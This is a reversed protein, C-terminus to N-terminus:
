DAIDDLILRGTNFEVQVSRDDYCERMYMDKEATIELEVGFNDICFKNIAKIATQRDEPKEISAVRATFIKVTQRNKLLEKVIEVMPYVPPGIYDFGKWITHKVLTGDLDVGIWSKAAM